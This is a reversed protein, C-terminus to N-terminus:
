RERDARRRTSENTLGRETDVVRRELAQMSQRNENALRELFEVRIQLQANPVSGQAQAATLTDVKAELKATSQVLANVTTELSGGWRTVYVLHGAILVVLSIYPGWRMVLPATDPPRRGPTRDALGNENQDM